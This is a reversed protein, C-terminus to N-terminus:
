GKGEDELDLDLWVKLPKGVAEPIAPFRDLLAQFTARDPHVCIGIVLNEQADPDSKQVANRFMKYQARSPKKLVIEWKPLEDKGPKGRLVLVDGHQAEFASIQEQSLM